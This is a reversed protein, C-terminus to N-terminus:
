IKKVKDNIAFFEKDVVAAIRDNLMKYRDIPAASPIPTRQVDLMIQVIKERIDKLTAYKVKDEFDRLETYHEYNM